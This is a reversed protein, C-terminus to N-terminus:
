NEADVQGLQLSKIWQTFQGVSSNYGIFNLPQFGPITKEAHRNLWNILHVARGSADLGPLREADFVVPIVRIARFQAKSDFLLEPLLSVSSLRRTSLGGSSVFNGVSHLVPVGKICEAARIVHPGHGILVGAGADIMAAAFKRANGRQEGLFVEQSDTLLVAKEGEGGLQYYLVVLDSKARVKSVLEATATLNNVNNYKPYHSLAVIGIRMGKVQLIEYSGNLGTHAIGEDALYKQTDAFGNAGYDNSHNNAISILHFNAAKLIAATDVPFRFSYSRGPVFPKRPTKENTIAGELNGLVLDAQALHPMFDEFARRNVQANESFVLDGTAVLKLDGPMENTLEGACNVFGPLGATPDGAANVTGVLGLWAILLGMGPKLVIPAKWIIAMDEVRQQLLYLQGFQM